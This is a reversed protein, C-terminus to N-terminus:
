SVCATLAIGSNPQVLVKSFMRCCEKDPCFYNFGQNHTNLHRDESLWLFCVVKLNSPKSWILDWDSSIDLFLVQSWLLICLPYQASMRVRTWSYWLNIRSNRCVDICQNQSCIWVLTLHVWEGFTETRRPYLMSGVIYFLENNM